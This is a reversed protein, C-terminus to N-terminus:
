VASAFAVVQRGPTFVFEINFVSQGANEFEDAAVQVPGHIPDVEYVRLRAKEGAALPIPLTATATAVGSDAGYSISIPVRTEVSAAGPSNALVISTQM